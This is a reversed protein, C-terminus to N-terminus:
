RRDAITPTLVTARDMVNVLTCLQLTPDRYTTYYAWMWFYGAFWILEGAVFLFALLVEDSTWRTVNEAKMSQLAVFIQVVFIALASWMMLRMYRRWKIFRKFERMCNRVAEMQARANRAFFSDVTNHWSHDMSNFNAYMFMFLFAIAGGVALMYAVYALGRFGAGQATPFLQDRLEVLYLANVSAAALALFVLTGAWKLIRDNLASKAEMDLISVTSKNRHDKETYYEIISEDTPEGSPLVGERNTLGSFRRAELRELIAKTAVLRFLWHVKPEKGRKASSM